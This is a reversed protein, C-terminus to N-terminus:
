PAAERTRSIARAMTALGATATGMGAAVTM